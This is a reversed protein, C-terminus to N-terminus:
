EALFSGMNPARSLADRCVLQVGCVVRASSGGSHSRSPMLLGKLGTRFMFIGVEVLLVDGM